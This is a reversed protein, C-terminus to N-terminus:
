AARLYTNPLPNGVFYGSVNKSAMALSAPLHSYSNSGAEVRPKEPALLAPPHIEDASIRAATFDLQELMFGTVGQVALLISLNLM